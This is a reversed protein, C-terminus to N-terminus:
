KGREVIQGRALWEDMNRNLQNLLSLRKILDTKSINGLGLGTSSNLKRRIRSFWAVAKQGYYNRMIANKLQMWILSGGASTKDEKRVIERSTSIM